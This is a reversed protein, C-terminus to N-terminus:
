AAGEPAVWRFRALVAEGEEYQKLMKAGKARTGLAHRAIEALGVLFAPHVTIATSTEVTELGLATEVMQEPTLAAGSSVMKLALLAEEERDTAVREALDALELNSYPQDKPDLVLAGDPSQCMRLRLALRRLLQAVDLYERSM